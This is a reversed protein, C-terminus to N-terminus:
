RKVRAGGFGRFLKVRMCGPVSPPILGARRDEQRPLVHMRIGDELAGESAPRGWFHAATSAQM